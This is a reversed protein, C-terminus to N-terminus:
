RKIHMREPLRGTKQNRNRGKQMMDTVNQQHTGQWLHEPNVCSPNDCTHCVSLTPDLTSYHHQWEFRHTSMRRGYHHFYGYGDKDKSGCWLWCSDTKKVKRMLRKFPPQWRM